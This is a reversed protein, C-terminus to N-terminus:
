FLVLALEKRYQGAIPTNEGLAELLAVIVRRALDERYHKQERLIDLLGDLAAEYNGRKILIISNNFAADLPNEDDFPFGKGSSLLAQSLPLILEASNYERSAPFHTLINNAEQSGGKLILSRSLGLLAPPHEPSRELVKRFGQEAEAFRQDNLLSFSKEILLDNESPAITRLFERVRPEPQLGIFEAIVKGHRFAKIVPISRVAYRLALNPNDDVNLKALRFTGQGEEALRELMPGLTRCPTCWEAWFDVVVPLNQSYALVEYEFDAENVDIIFDSATM